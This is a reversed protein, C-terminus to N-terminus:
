GGSKSILVTGKARRAKIKVTYVGNEPINVAFDATERGNGTYLETGNPVTIKMNVSGKAAEFHIKLADGAALELTHEDTGTMREFKLSYSNSSANRDGVFENQNYVAAFIIIGAALITLLSVAATKRKM